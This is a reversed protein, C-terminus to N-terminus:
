SDRHAALCADIRALSEDKGLMEVVTFIPPSVPGGSLAIRIPQAIKGMRGECDREAQETLAAEIREEEWSDLGALVERSGAM